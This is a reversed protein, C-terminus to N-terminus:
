NLDRMPLAVARPIQKQKDHHRDMHLVLLLSLIAVQTCSCILRPIMKHSETFTMKRSPRPSLYPSWRFNAATRTGSVVRTKGATAMPMNTNYEKWSSGNDLCSCLSFKFLSGWSSDGDPYEGISARNLCTKQLARLNTTTFLIDDSYLGM